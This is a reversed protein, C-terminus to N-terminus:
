QGSNIIKEVEAEVLYAAILKGNVYFTPTGNLKLENAKAADGAVMKTIEDNKYASEFDDKNLGVEEAYRIALNDFDDVGSWESQKSFLLERMEWGKGLTRASEAALASKWANEHITVLPFHRFVFKVGEREKVRNVIEDATACGPCEFDAFEVITVKIEGKESIWRAGDVLQSNEVQIGEVQGSSLRGLGWVMLGVVGISGLLVGLVVKWNVM